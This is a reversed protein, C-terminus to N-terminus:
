KKILSSVLTTFGKTLGSLQKISHIQKVFNYVIKPRFYFEKFFLKKYEELDDITLGNPIFVPTWMNMKRWDADFTGYRHATKYLETGPLPTVYTVHANSLPLKKAFDITERMTDKTELPHGMMFFGKVQIGVKATWEVVEEIKNLKTNKKEIDLISQNGSEIGYCIQWCGADKIMQLKEKSKVTDIRADCSWTLDIKNQKIYNCIKTIRNSNVIFNDDYFAIDKIGYNTILDNIMDIVYEASFARINHGFVATDCFTCQGYCGRSTILCASPFRHSRMASQSYAQPFNKLLDWAPLPLQDLDKIFERPSTRIIKNDSRIILGAINKLSNEDVGYKVIEEITVESEGIAAFDFEPYESLTSEPLATIHPGGIIITNKFGRKKLERAVGAANNISITAATLGVLDPNIYLIENVTDDIGYDIAPSDIIHVEAGVKRIVAALSCLAMPPLHSGAKSLVGYRETMTLPPNIFCVNKIALM